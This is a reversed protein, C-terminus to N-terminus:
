NRSFILFEYTHVLRTICFDIGYRRKYPTYGPDAGCIVPLRWAGFLVLLEYLDRKELKRRGGM